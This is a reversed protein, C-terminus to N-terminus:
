PTGLVITVRRSEQADMTYGVEGRARITIRQATVGGAVLGDAVVQARTRSIDKNAQASGEPDAYGSVVVPAAPHAKAWDAASAIVAKAPDDLAASFEQFFVVYRQGSPEFLSCAGLALLMGLIFLRRM